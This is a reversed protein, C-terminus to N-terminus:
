RERERERERENYKLDSESQNAMLQFSRFTACLEDLSSKKVNDTVDM